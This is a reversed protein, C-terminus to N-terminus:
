YFLSNEEPSRRRVLSEIYQKMQRLGTLNLGMVGFTITWESTTKRQKKEFDIIETTKNINLSKGALTRLLKSDVSRRGSCNSLTVSNWSSTWFLKVLSNTHTHM